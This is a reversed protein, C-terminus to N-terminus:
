HQTAHYVFALVIMAVVQGLGAVIGITCLVPYLSPLAAMERRHQPYWILGWITGIPATCPLVSLIFIWVARTRMRPLQEELVRRSQFEAADQPQASSFTAGCYRCRVAAALIERGCAPCPKNEQGWFSMPTELPGRKEVVPVQSCGYVGCGGNEQWCDEHYAGGCDPCRTQAEAAEVPVRCFPCIPSATPADMSM